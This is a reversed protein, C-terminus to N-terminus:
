IIIDDIILRYTGTEPINAHHTRLYWKGATRKLEYDVGHDGQFIFHADDRVLFPGELTKVEPDSQNIVYVEWSEWGDPEPDNLAILVRGDADQETVKVISYVVPLRIEKEYVQATYEMHHRKLSKDPDDLSYRVERFFTPLVKDTPWNLGNLLEDIVDGINEVSIFNVSRNWVDVELRVDDRYLDTTDDRKFSYVVYPYEASDPANEYYVQTGTSSILIEEVAEKLNGYTM